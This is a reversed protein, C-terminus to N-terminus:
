GIILMDHNDPYEVKETISSASEVIGHINATCSGSRFLPLHVQLTEMGMLISCIKSIGQPSVRLLLCGEFGAQDYSRREQPSVPTFEFKGNQLARLSRFFKSGEFKDNYM